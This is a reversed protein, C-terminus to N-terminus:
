GSVEGGRPTVAVKKLAARDNSASEKFFTATVRPPGLKDGKSLTKVVKLIFGKFGKEVDQLKSFINM